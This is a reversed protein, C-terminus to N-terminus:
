FSYRVGVQAQWRSSFQDISWKSTPTTYGGNIPLAGNVATGRSAISLGPDVSSNITNPTFYYVGWNKNIMNSFNIIDFTLQVTNIKQGVKINFDHMLRLDLQNNWPTRAGNRETFQGQHKSLYTDNQIFNAFNAQQTATLNYPNEGSALNPVYFLDAQQGNKTLNNSSTIAYTFPSGSQSTSILSIYSTNKPSWSKKYQITAVIRHRIDFNSYTLGLNNPNLGQNTQWGSEPSNRIGNLIDKSQGYTYAANFSMGFPYSKSLQATLQYRYGKDTNTILYVSSFANSVRGATAGGSLYLPQVHNVDYSAYAVSDKLNVQKIMIDKVTKTYLAEL